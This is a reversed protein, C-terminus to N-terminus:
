RSLCGRALEQGLAHAKRCDVPFQTKRYDAKETESFCEVKYKSYDSFQYTNNVYLELPKRSFIREAFSEAARLKEPYGRQEMVDSTVNM